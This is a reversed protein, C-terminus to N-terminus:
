RRASFGLMHMASLGIHAASGRLVLAEQPTFRMLVLVVTLFMDLRSGSSRVSNNDQMRDEEKLPISPQAGMITLGDGTLAKEVLSM